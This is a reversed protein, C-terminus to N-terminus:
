LHAIADHDSVAQGIGKKARRLAQVPGGEHDIDGKIPLFQRRLVHHDINARRELHELLRQCREGILVEIAQRLELAFQSGRLKQALVNELRHNLRGFVTGKALVALPEGFDLHGQVFGIQSPGREFPSQSCTTAAAAMGWMARTASAPAWGGTWPGDAAMISAANAM